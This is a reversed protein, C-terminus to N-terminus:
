LYNPNFYKFFYRHINLKREDGMQKYKEYNDYDQSLKYLIATLYYFECCNPHKNIWISLSDIFEKYFDKKIYEPARKIINSYTKIVCEINFEIPISEYKDFICAAYNYLSTSSLYKADNEYKKALAYYDIFSYNNSADNSSNMFKEITEKNTVILESTCDLQSYTIYVDDGNVVLGCTFECMPSNFVFWDSIKIINLDNDYFVFATLYDYHNIDGDTYYNNTHVLSVYMNEDYRVIQTSGKITDRLEDNIENRKIVNCDGNDNVKVVILPNHSYVFTFPKDCVAAWNKECKNDFQPKIVIEKEPKFMDNLEYLCICGRDQIKDWRTGYAYLKNNWVVLRCDELGKYYSNVTDYKSYDVEKIDYIKNDKGFKSIINLSTFGDETFIYIQSNNISDIPKFKPSQFLKVYNILRSNLILNDRYWVCTINSESFKGKLIRTPYGINCVQGGNQTIFRVLSKM